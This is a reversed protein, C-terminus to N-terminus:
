RIKGIILLALGLILTFTVVLGFPSNLTLNNFQTRVWDAAALFNTDTVLDSSVEIDEMSNSMNDLFSDEMDFYDNFESSMNSTGSDLSNSSSTTNEDGNMILQDTSSGVNDPYYTLSGSTYSGALYASNLTSTSTIDPLPYYVTVSNYVGNNVSGSSYFAQYNVRVIDRRYGSEVTVNNGFHNGDSDRIGKYSYLTTSYNYSVAYDVYAPFDIGATFTKNVSTGSSNVVSAGPPSYLNIIVPDTPYNYNYINKHVLLLVSPPVINPDTEFVAGYSVNSTPTFTYPNSTSIISDNDNNVWHKFVYGTNPTATITVSTGSDVITNGSPNTSGMSLDRSQIWVSYRTVSPQNAVFQATYTANGSVTVSRPNTTVGDSWQSFTYGSNASASLSVVTGENYTGGGSVTGSGSPSVNTTITYQTPQVSEATFYATYTKNGTAFVSLTTNTGLNESSQSEWHDFVYGSNPIATLYVASGEDYTGGGTVTGSGSPSVAGTITYQTVSVTTGSFRFARGGNNSFSGDISWVSNAGANKYNSNMGIVYYQYATSTSTNITLIGTSSRTGTGIEFNDNFSSSSSGYVHVTTTRSDNIVISLEASTMVFPDDFTLYFFCETGKAVNKGENTQYMKTLTGNNFHGLRSDGTIATPYYYTDASVSFPNVSILGLLLLSSLCVKNLFQFWTPLKKVM